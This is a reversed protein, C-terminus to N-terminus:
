EEVLASDEDHYARRILEKILKAEDDSIRSAWRDFVIEDIIARSKKVTAVGDATVALITVRRDDASADRRLFGAEELRDVLKTIGGRSLVLLDALDSMKLESDCLHINILAEHDALGIGLEKGLRTEIEAKLVFSFHLMHNVAERWAPENTTGM